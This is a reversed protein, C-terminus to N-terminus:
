RSTWGGDVALVSGTVYSAADSALFVAPGAIEEPEAFRELPTRDIISQRLEENEQLGTTLETAVYGPAIANVRVDPAWDMSMSKTLGVLGHKSAVYPHQRPLGVLGGVSAVNIVSGGDSELLSDAAATTVEYAGNLNVDLVRDFSETSVDEPRGLADAPNFGANNVVVDVNGFEAEARDIASTVADPDTVDASVALADGGNAEIEDAVAEIEDTSRASPVVAAGANALEVAIARGIGRGGGTVLAVRGSLDFLDSM